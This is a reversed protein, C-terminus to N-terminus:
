SELFVQLAIISVEVLVSIEPQMFVTIGLETVLIPFLAKLPQVPKVEMSIGFETALMPPPAKLPQVPKVDTDIPM